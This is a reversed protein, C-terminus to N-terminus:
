ERIRKDKFDDPSQYFSEHIVMQDKGAGFIRTTEKEKQGEELPLVIIEVEETNFDPPLEIKIQQNQPRVIQRLAIM